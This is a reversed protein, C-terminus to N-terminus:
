GHLKDQLKDGLNDIGKATLVTGGILVGSVILTAVLCFKLISKIM